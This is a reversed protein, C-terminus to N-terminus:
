DLAQTLLRALDLFSLLSDDVLTAKYVNLIRQAATTSLM